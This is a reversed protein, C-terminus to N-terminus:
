QLSMHTVSVQFKNILSFGPSLTNLFCLSGNCLRPGWRQEGMHHTGVDGDQGVLPQSESDQCPRMAIIKKRNPGATIFGLNM